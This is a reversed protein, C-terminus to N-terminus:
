AGSEDPPAVGATEDNEMPLREIAIEKVDSASPAIKEASILLQGNELEKSSLTQLNADPPMTFSRKFSSSHFGDETQEMKTGQVIMVNNQLSLKVDAKDMGQIDMTYRYEQDTESLQLAPAGWGRGLTSLGMPSTLEDKKSSLPASQSEPIMSTSGEESRSATSDGRGLLEDWYNQRLQKGLLYKDMDNMRDIWDFVEFMDKMSHRFSRSGFGANFPDFTSASAKIPRSSSVTTKKLTPSLPLRSNMPSPKIQRTQPAGLPTQRNEGWSVGVYCGVVIALVFAVISAWFFRSPKRHGTRSDKSSSSGNLQTYDM